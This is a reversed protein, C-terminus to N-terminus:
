RTMLCQQPSMISQETQMTGIWCLSLRLHRVSVKVTRTSLIRVICIPRMHEACRQSILPNVVLTTPKTDLVSDAVFTSCHSEGDVSVFDRAIRALRMQGTCLLSIMCNTKWHRQTQYKQLWSSATHISGLLVECLRDSLGRQSSQEPCNHYAKNWGQPDLLRVTMCDHTLSAFRSIRHATRKLLFPSSASLIQGFAILLTDNRGGNIYQGHIRM